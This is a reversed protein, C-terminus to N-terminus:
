NYFAFAEIDARIKSGDAKDIKIRDIRFLRDGSMIENILKLLNSYRGMFTLTVPISNIESENRYEGFEIRVFDSSNESSYEKILEIIKYDEPSSPIQKKLLELTYELEPQLNRLKKLFDLRDYNNKLAVTEHRINENLKKTNVFNMVSLTVLLICMIASLFILLAGTDTRNVKKM